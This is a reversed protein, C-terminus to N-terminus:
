SRECYNCFENLLYSWGYPGDMMSRYASGEAGHNSFDRHTLTVECKSEDVKHFRVEVSSAQSPNPIPERKSSIQWLFIIHHGPSIDTVRGWDCRFGHPGIETCQAGKETGLDIRVLADQSWTYAPPWWENFSYVFRKYAVEASMGVSLAKTIEQM